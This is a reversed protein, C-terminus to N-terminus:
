LSLPIVHHCQFRSVHWSAIELIEVYFYFFCDSVLLQIVKMIRFSYLYM